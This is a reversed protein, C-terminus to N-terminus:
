ILLHIKGSHKFELWTVKVCDMASVNGEDMYRPPLFIGSSSATAINAQGSRVQGTRERWDAGTVVSTQLWGSGVQGSRLQGSKERWDARIMMAPTEPQGSRIQDSRDQGSRVEGRGGALM